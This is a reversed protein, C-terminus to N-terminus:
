TVTYFLEIGSENTGMLNGYFDTVFVKRHDHITLLLTPTSSTTFCIMCQIIHAVFKLQREM